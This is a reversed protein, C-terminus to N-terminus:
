QGAETAQKRQICEYLAKRLQFLHKKIAGVSRNTLEAIEALPKEEGYRWNLIQRPKEGMEELCSRLHGLLPNQADSDGAARRELEQNLAHPAYRSHYDAMRQLRTCEAMLQYRAITFLWARFDTGIAFDDIRKFAQVFTKQAVEDADGGPPCRSVLWARIPREYLRVIEAFADLNGAQVQEIQEDLGM